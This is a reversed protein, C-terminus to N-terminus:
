ERKYFNDESHKEPNMVNISISGFAQIKGGDYPKPSKLKIM